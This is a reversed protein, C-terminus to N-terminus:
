APTACGDRLISDSEETLRALYAAEAIKQADALNKCGHVRQRQGSFGIRMDFYQNPESQWQTVEVSMLRYKTILNFSNPRATSVHWGPRSVYEM